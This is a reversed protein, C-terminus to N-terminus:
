GRIVEQTFDLPGRCRRCLYRRGKRVLAHRQATFEFRGDPCNCRYLYLTRARQPLEYTHCRDPPLGYVGRMILQWEEGHPRIGGGFLQHAVLHAVEHAVTQELFHARNERYLQRNFRLRNETLHAVGARQGRLALSVEPRPFRRKFFAEAQRYCDEVRATLQEPMPM